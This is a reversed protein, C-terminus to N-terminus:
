LTTTPGEPGVVEDAGTVVPRPSSGVERVVGEAAGTAAAAATTEAAEAPQPLSAEQSESTPLPVSADVVSEMGAASEELVTEAAESVASPAFGGAREYQHLVQSVSAISELISPEAFMREM